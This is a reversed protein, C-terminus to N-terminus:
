NSKVQKDLDNNALIRPVFDLCIHMSPVGNVLVPILSKPYGQFHVLEALSSNEIFMQHIFSCVICQIDRTVMENSKKKILLFIDLLLQIIATDQTVILSNRLEQRDKILRMQNNATTTGAAAAAKNDNTSSLFSLHTEIIYLEM